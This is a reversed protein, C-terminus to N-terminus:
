TSEGVGTQKGAYLNSTSIVRLERGDSSNAFEHGFPLWAIDRVGVVTAKM